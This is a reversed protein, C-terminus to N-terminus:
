RREQANEVFVNQQTNQSKHGINRKFNAIRATSTLKQSIIWHLSPVTIQAAAAAAKAISTIHNQSRNQVAFSTVYKYRTLDTITSRRKFAQKPSSLNNSAMIESLLQIPGSINM